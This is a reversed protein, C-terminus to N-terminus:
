FRSELDALDKVFDERGDKDKLIYFSGVSRETRMIATMLDYMVTAKYQEASISATQASMQDTISVVGRSYADNILNLAKKASDSSIEANKIKSYESVVKLLYSIVQQELRKIIAEKQYEM